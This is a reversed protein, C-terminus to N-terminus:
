FCLYLLSNIRIAEGGYRLILYLSDASMLASEKINLEIQIRM